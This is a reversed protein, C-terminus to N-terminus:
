KAEQGPSKLLLQKFYATLTKAWMETAYNDEVFQRGNLGLTIRLKTNSILSAIREEWQASSVAYFGTVGPTVFQRNRRIPSVVVPLGSAMYQLTKYGDNSGAWQSGPLPTIGIDFSILEAQYNLSWPQFIVNIGEMPFPADCVIKFVLHPFQQQLKQLPKKVINLLFLNRSHGIWGVTVNLKAEHDKVPYSATDVTTPLFKVRQNLRGAFRVLERNAALVLDCHEIMIKTNHYFAQIRDDNTLEPRLYVADDLDYVLKVGKARLQDLYAKPFWVQQFFVIDFEKAYELLDEDPKASWILDANFGNLYPTYQWVRYRSSARTIDGVTLFLVKM